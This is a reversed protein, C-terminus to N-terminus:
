RPYLQYVALRDHFLQPIYIYNNRQNISFDAPAPLEIVTSVEKRDPSVLAIRNGILDSVLISADKLVEIGDLSRFHEALGFSRPEGVGSPDIEYIEHQAFSVAFIQGKYCTVGNVGEPAKLTM